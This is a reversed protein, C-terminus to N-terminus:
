FRPNTSNSNRSDLLLHKEKHSGTDILLCSEVAAQRHTKPASRRGQVVTAVFSKSATLETGLLLKPSLHFAPTGPALAKRLHFDFGRWGCGLNGESVVIFGKRCGRLFESIMLFSGHANYGMQLIFVTEGDRVTRAFHGPPETSIFDELM